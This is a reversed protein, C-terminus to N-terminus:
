TDHFETFKSKSTTTTQDPKHVVSTTKPVTKTGTNGTTKSAPPKKTATAAAKGAAPKRKAVPKKVNKAAPKKVAKATTTTKKGGFLTNSSGLDQSLVYISLMSLSAILITLRFAVLM